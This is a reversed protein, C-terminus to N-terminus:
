RPGPGSVRAAPRRLKEALTQKIREFRKRLRAADRELAAASPEAESSLVEAVERWSMERSVRLVLLERDEPELSDRLRTLESKTETRLYDLTNTRVQQV